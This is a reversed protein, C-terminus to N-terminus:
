EFLAGGIGQITAAGEEQNSLIDPNIVAGTDFAAVM